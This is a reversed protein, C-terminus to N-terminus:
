VLIPTLAKKATRDTKVLAVVAGGTRLWKRSGLLAENQQLWLELLEPVTVKGAAPHLLM